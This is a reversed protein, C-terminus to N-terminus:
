FERTRRREPGRDTRDTEEDRAMYGDGQGTWGRAIECCGIVGLILRFGM